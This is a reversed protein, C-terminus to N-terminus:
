FGRIVGIVTFRKYLSSIFIFAMSWGLRGVVFHL